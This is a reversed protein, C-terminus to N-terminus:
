DEEEEKMEVDDEEQKEEEEDSDSSEEGSGEKAGGGGGKIFKEFEKLRREESEETEQVKYKTKGDWLEATLKRGDVVRGNLYKVAMDSEETTVFTVSVVGEPHNDYVVVKKVTGYKQCSQTMEEKLDLMLAANKAMMELTFLNKVIVTCDSKPRYNRPKDPTWEFIKNQQEMYRKKQAVTLKKRKRSPDFDGKMEFHAEEVKVTNGKFQSGDLINCALDISEKKIYCCRGDGKLEGNEDRYLKCKPKNTRIDPQIVGCKSMFEQFEEDTIDEPLNSVYVAHVKDGLDVWGEKKEEETHLGKKKKRKLEKKEEQEKQIKATKQQLEDDMKKYIEDYQVGYNAQYEAIFDENVELQEQATSNAKPVWERKEEDWDYHKRATKEQDEQEFWLQSLFEQEDEPVPVWDEKVHELLEGEEGYKGYWKNNLFRRSFSQDIVVTEPEAVKAMKAVPELKMSEEENEETEPVFDSM